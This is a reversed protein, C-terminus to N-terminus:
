PDPIRQRRRDSRAGGICLPVRRQCGCVRGGDDDECTCGEDDEGAWETEDTEDLVSAEQVSLDAPVGGGKGETSAGAFHVHLVVEVLFLGHEDITQLLSKGERVNDALIPLVGNLADIHSLNGFRKPLVYM